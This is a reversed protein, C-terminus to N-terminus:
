TFHTFNMTNVVIITQPDKEKTLEKIKHFFCTDTSYWLASIGCLEEFHDKLITNKNESFDCYPLIMM